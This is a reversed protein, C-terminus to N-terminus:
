RSGGRRTRLSLTNLGRGGAPRPTSRLLGTRVRGAHPRPLRHAAAPQQALRGMGAHGARRRRAGELARPSSDARDQVARHKVRGPRQGARRRGLRRPTGCRRRGPARHVCDLPIAVRRRQPVRSRVPRHRRRPHPNLHGARPRRPGPRHADRHAGGASSEAPTPTSSPPPTSPARGPPPTPSTPWGSRTRDHPPFGANSWTPRVLEAREDTSLGEARGADIDDQKMWRRMCSEAIGLGHAMEAVPKARLRALEVARRRFEPPKAAPM